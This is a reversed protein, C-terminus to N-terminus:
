NGVVNKQPIRRKIKQWFFPIVRRCLRVAFFILALIMALIILISIMLVLHGKWSYLLGNKSMIGSIPNYLNVCAPRYVYLAGEYEAWEQLTMNRLIVKCPAIGVTIIHVTQDTLSATTLRGDASWAMSSVQNTPAKLMQIPQGTQLDWVIVSGDYSGSALRGDASWAVSSVSANVKLTQAPRGTQLNWIIVTGDQSGSALRGDDSWAVSTVWNTHGKLVQAPQGTQLDWVIVKNDGSGSALRGDASWAVSTVSNTDGKLVKAPQGTQLNWLVVSEDWSGSALRGDASWAVSNVAFSNRKLVQAPQANQLNWIIVNGDQSGSALHGDASWAVSTVWDTNGRLVQAPQGTQLDWVIVTNDDSGSALRGDASWAVSLVGGTHGKLTQAPQGARLNWIIVTNDDSGSALRGDTSWSVSDVRDIHGKLVQAPQGTQIDWIIITDDWAGSALRGDASWAVSTVTFSHGKLVQAPQGAQLDWTIVTGDYSGSALRGDASWAVSTVWNTHGKLIQAPQGTQLDWIIVTGDYSGSALRGDVSWGVSTVWKTHGKLIQAPQGTQLDWVIVSDDESGSALRGDASWAVSTVGYTHGKLTQAPQGTKLDWIIVSGDQSGSALRGDASWAVSPVPDTHGFLQRGTTLNEYPLQGLVTDATVNKHILDSQHAYLMATNYDQQAFSVEALAGLRQARSINLQALAFILLALVIASFGVLGIITRRRLRERQRRVLVEAEISAQVFARALDGLTLAKINERATALRTGRYLYSTERGCEDWEKADANIASRLTLIERNEDVLKRLWPWAEILKEHALTATDRGAQRDTTVLRADALKQLLVKVQGADTGAPALEEFYALGRTDDQASSGVRVLGGFISRALEQESSNLRAFVEDAHRELSESIGGRDLYEKCTLEMVGGAAQRADFLGKLAFQMLPLAGTEGEMDFTIQSILAPDIRLGVSLAPLAVCRVLEESQMPGVLLKPSQNYLALLSPYRTLVSIFESRMAFLLIVRGNEAAAARTLLEIFRAAQEPSVLTFVEEFQDLFFVLRQSEQGSLVSEACKNIIDPENAHQRFYDGLEPTKLRSFATALADLPVRGPTIIDYLWHESHREAIAGEKLAHILGARVLSSKGSGSPGTVFVARANRVQGVLEKVLGERGFFLAADDEEFAPLGKYPCRGDFPKPQFETGLKEMLVKVQEVGLGQYVIDGGAINVGGGVNSFNGVKIQRRDM